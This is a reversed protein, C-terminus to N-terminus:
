FRVGVASQSSILRVDKLCDCSVVLEWMDCKMVFYMLLVRIVMFIICRRPRVVVFRQGRETNNSRLSYLM